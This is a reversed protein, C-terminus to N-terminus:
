RRPPEAIDGTRQVRQIQGCALFVIGLAALHLPRRQLHRIQNAGGSLAEELATAAPQASLMAFHQRGDGTAAGGSEASVAQAALVAVMRRGQDIVRAQIAMAGLTLGARALAPELRSPFFEQRHTIQVHDERQRANERLQGQLVLIQEVRQQHFGAGLRQERDSAIRAPEAGLQAEERNQMGPTLEELRVGMSVQDNGGATEREIVAAPDVGRRLVEEQGLGHQRFDKAALEDWPL